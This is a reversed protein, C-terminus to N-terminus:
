KTSSRLLRQELGSLIRLLPANSAASMGESAIGADCSRFAEQLRVVAGTAGSTLAADACVDYVSPDVPSNDVDLCCGLAAALASAAPFAVEVDVYARESDLIATLVPIGDCAALQWLATRQAWAIGDAECPLTVSTAGDLAHALCSVENGAMSRQLLADLAHCGAIAVGVDDNAMERLVGCVVGVAGADVLAERGHSSAAFGTLAVLAHLPIDHDNPHAHLRPPVLLGLVGALGGKAATFAACFRPDSSVNGLLWLSQAVVAPDAAPNAFTGALAAPAESEALATLADSFLSVASHDTVHTLARLLDLNPIKSEDHSEKDGRADSSGVGPPTPAALTAAARSVLAPLLEPGVAKALQPPLAAIASYADRLSAEGTSDDIITKVAEAARRESRRQVSGASSVGKRLRKKTRTPLPQLVASLRRTDAIDQGSLVTSVFGGARSLHLPNVLAIDSGLKDTDVPVVQCQHAQLPVGQLPQDHLQLPPGVPDDVDVYSDELRQGEHQEAQDGWPAM